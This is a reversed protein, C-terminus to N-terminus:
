KRRVLSAIFGLLFGFLLWILKSVLRNKFTPISAKLAKNQKSILNYSALLKDYDPNYYKYLSELTDLKNNLDVSLINSTIRATAIAVSTQVTVSDDKIKAPIFIVNSDGNINSTSDRLRKIIGRLFSINEVYIQLSDSSSDDSEEPIPIYIPVEVMISDSSPVDPASDFICHFTRCNTFSVIIILLIIFKKM